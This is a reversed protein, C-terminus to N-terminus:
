YSKRRKFVEKTCRVLSYQRRYMGSVGDEESGELSWGEAWTSSIWGGKSFLASQAFSKWINCWMEQKTGLLTSVSNLEAAAVDCEAPVHLSLMVTVCNEFYCKERPVLVQRRRPAYKNLAFRQTSSSNFALGLTNNWEQHLASFISSAMFAM